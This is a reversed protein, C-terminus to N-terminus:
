RGDANRSIREIADYLMAAESEGLAAFRSVIRGDRGILFTAPLARVGYARMTRQGEDLLMPYPISLGAAISRVRDVNEPDAVACLIQARDGLRRQLAILVPIEERCPACWTAFFTLVVPRRLEANLYVTRGTLDGLRFDPAVAGAQLPTGGKACCFVLLLLVPTFLILSSRRTATM